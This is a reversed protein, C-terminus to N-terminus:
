FLFFFMAILIITIMCIHTKEGITKGATCYRQSCYETPKLKYVYFDGCNRVKISDAWKCCSGGYSYDSKMRFHYCVKRTVEGEEVTPHKEALWVTTTAGCRDMPVCKDAM